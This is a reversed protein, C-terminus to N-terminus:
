HAHGLPDGHGLPQKSKVCSGAFQPAHPVTHGVPDVHVAPAQTQGVPVVSQGVPQKSRVLSGALQPLQPVTQPGPRIQSAPLHVQSAVPLTDNEPVIWGIKVEFQVL